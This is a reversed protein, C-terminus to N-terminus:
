LAGTTHRHGPEDDDASANCRSCIRGDGVRQVEGGCGRHWMKGADPDDPTPGYHWDLRAM